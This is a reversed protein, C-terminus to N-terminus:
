GIVYEGPRDFSLVRADLTERVYGRIRYKEEDAETTDRVSAGGNKVVLSNIVVNAGDVARIILAGDVDLKHIVIGSGDLVLSSQQTVRVDQPAKFKARIDGTTLGFRPTLVVRAGTVTPVGACERKPGEVDVNAGFSNLLKRAALYVDAEGTSASEAFGTKNYKALADKPNNKVASFCLWREIQTFGVPLTSDLLKPFDQMMCELRTPKKFVVKADDAYKPNVFEPIAGGSAALATAYAKAQFVLVNINGPYASFDSNEAAVDGKGTTAQLLPDLQNYEVNITLGGSGDEKQLRCIGGVAEGPRRPVTLSNLVFGNKHSVGVAAFMSRLVLANTDQFFVIFDIGTEAWKQALGSSHILTHVDGHGHPKTQIAYGSDSLAFRANNDVLAPVKEQKVIHIQDPSAGFYGNDELLKVTPEHTDGSTMIALPVLDNPSGSLRQVELIFDIYVGLYCRGTATEAPLAVKIGHYGLREGLGGAVLVFAKKPAKGLEEAAAFTGDNFSLREGSPVMPTYGEYRRTM